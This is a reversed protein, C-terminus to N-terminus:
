VYGLGKDFSVPTTQGAAKPYNFDEEEMHAPVIVVDYCHHYSLYDGSESVSRAIDRGQETLNAM